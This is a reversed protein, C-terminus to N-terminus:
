AHGAYGALQFPDVGMLGAAATWREELPTDFIVRENADTTLWANDM